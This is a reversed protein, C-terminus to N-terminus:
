VDRKKKKYILILSMICVIFLGGIIDLLDYLVFAILIDKWM